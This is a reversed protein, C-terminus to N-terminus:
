PYDIALKELSMATEVATALLILAVWGRYPRLLLSVVDGM